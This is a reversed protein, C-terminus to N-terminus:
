PTAGGAGAEAVPLSFSFRSGVGVESEAWIRGGQAEVLLRTIYLGLGLGGPRGPGRGARFYREFLHALDEPAIGPGIDSVATVVVGDEQRLTVTVPTGPTSYALANSFLNTLIRELRNPDARAPPLGAPPPGLHIRGTELARSLRQLLEHIFAPLDVAQPHLEIQGAELRASEVLDQIMADMRRASTVISEASAREERAPAGRDVERELLEAQGLIAALPNRLDHSVARLLDQRRQDREQIDGAMHNFDGALQELEDGTTVRVRASYDGQGFARAGETLRSLPGLLLRALVLALGISFAVVGAFLLATIRLDAVAPALAVSVPTSVGVVWGHQPTLHTVVLRRDGFVPDVVQGHFPQGQLTQRVPAFRTLDRQQLTLDPAGTYFAVTGTRDVLFVEEGQARQVTTLLQPFLDLSLASSSVGIRNGAADVIPAGTSVIPRGTGRSIVVSGVAQPAGAMLERFFERDAINFPGPVAASAVLNGQADFIGLPDDFEPFLPRIRVLYPGLRAGDLTMVVPDTAFVGDLQLAEHLEDDVILGVSEAVRMQENFADETDEQLTVLYGRVLLALVPLLVLLFALLLKARLSIRWPRPPFRM